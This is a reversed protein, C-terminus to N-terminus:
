NLILPHYEKKVYYRDKNIVSITRDFNIDGDDCLFHYRLKANVM